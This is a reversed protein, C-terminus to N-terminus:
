RTAGLTRLLTEAAKARAERGPDPRQQRGERPMTLALPTQGAKNTADIAAGREVLLQIMSTHAAAAAAHLPTDGALNMETVKAGADLLLRTAILLDPEPRPIEPTDSDNIGLRAVDSPRAEHAVEAGAAVLLPSTGNALALAPSAGAALLVRMLDIELFMAAIFLPTAGALNNPLAWQSGFRRVPSGRTLQADPNAGKALLAKVTEADGRMVAAHLASYGAGAANPDTGRDLLLRAVPGHGQFASLVLASNGDAASDNADAGRDLLLRASEVDGSMAAFLLATSGGAEIAHAHERATKVGPPGQDLMVTLRRVVTRAKVDAGNELLVKVVDPHRQAAAWMLATQQRETEAANVNAKRPLLARVIATNGTRAARMLPTVGTESAINPNAGRALLREVVVAHGNESALALPTMSLDNRRDVRAGAAILANLIELDGHYAAWHLATTGDSEAANVDARDKLLSRVATVDRQKSAQVLPVTGAALAVAISLAFSLILGV